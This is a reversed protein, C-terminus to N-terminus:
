GDVPEFRHPGTLSHGLSGPGQYYVILYTRYVEMYITKKTGEDTTMAIHLASISYIAYLFSNHKLALDPVADTMVERYTPDSTGVLSLATKTTWQQMLQVELRRRAESEELIGPNTSMIPAAEEAPVSRGRDKTDSLDPPEGPTRNYGKV